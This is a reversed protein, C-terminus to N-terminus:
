NFGGDIIDGPGVQDVLGSRNAAFVARKRSRRPPSCCHGPLMLDTNIDDGFKWAKGSIM